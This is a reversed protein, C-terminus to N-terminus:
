IKADKAYKQMNRYIKLQMNKCINQIAYILMCAYLNIYSCINQVYKCM